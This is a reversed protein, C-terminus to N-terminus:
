ATKQKGAKEKGVDKKASSRRGLWKKRRAADNAKTSQRAPLALRVSSTETQLESALESFRVLKLQDLKSLM